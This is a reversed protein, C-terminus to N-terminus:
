DAKAAKADAHTKPEPHFTPEPIASRGHELLKDTAQILEQLSNDRLETTDAITRWRQGKFLRAGEEATLREGQLLPRKNLVVHGPEWPFWHRRMGIAPQLAYCDGLAMFAGINVFREPEHEPTYYGYGPERVHLTIINDDPGIGHEQLVADFEEGAGDPFRLRAIETNEM